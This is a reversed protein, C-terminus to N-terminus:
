LLARRTNFLLLVLKLLFFIIFVSLITFEIKKFIYGIDSRYLYYPLVFLSSFLIPSIPWKKYLINRLFFLIFANILAAVMIGFYGYNMMGEAVTSLGFQAKVVQGNTIYSSIWNAASLEANDFPFIIDIVANLYTNSGDYGENNGMSNIIVAENEMMRVEYGELIYTFLEYVGKDTGSIVLEIYNVTGLFIPLFLLALFFRKITFIEKRGTVHIFILGFLVMKVAGGKNIIYQGNEIISLVPTHILVIYLMSIICIAIIMRISRFKSLTLAFVMFFLLDVVEGWYHGIYSLSSIKLLFAIGISIVYALFFVKLSYEKRDKAQYNIKFDKSFVKLLLLYCLVFFLTYAANVTLVTEVMGDESWLLWSHDELFKYYFEYLLFVALNTFLYIYTHISGPDLIFRKQVVKHMIFSCALITLVSSLMM